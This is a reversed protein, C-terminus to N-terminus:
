RSPGVASPGEDSQLASGLEARSNIDLKRYAGRLHSEVTKISLFLTQAIQRNTLGDAALGAIRRESPTLSDVGIPAFRSMREGTAELEEHARRAVAVAGGRHAMELAQRLPERAEARRNARRLVSGLDTLAKAHELRAPSDELTAVAQRLLEIGKDGGRAIGMAHLGTGIVRPTGWTRAGRLYLDALARAPDGRGLGALALALFKGHARAAELSREIMGRASQGQGVGSLFIAADAVTGVATVQRIGRHRTRKGFEVADAGADATRGQAWRLRARGHLLPNAWFQDPVPGTLADAELERQAAELEGREVLVEVLWGLLFAYTVILGTQRLAEVAARLDPEARGVDGRAVALGGRLGLAIALAPTSGLAQAMAAFEDLTKEAAELEDARTLLFILIAVPQMPPQGQFIRGDDLASLALPVVTTAPQALWYARWAELALLLREAQTRPAIHSRYRHWAPSKETPATVDQSEFRMVADYDGAELAAKKARELLAVGEAFREHGFLWLSLEDASATLVQTNATLEDLARAELDGLAARDGARVAATMAKRLLDRRQVSPLPEALARRAFAIAAEPAGRDLARQAAVSLIEVVNPRGGPDTALLHLAIREPEAGHSELLRAAACHAANRETGPMEAYVANRVLPHVFRLPRGAELIGATVLADAAVATAHADLDGLAGAQRPAADDGLVAVARALRGADAPLRALRLLVSRQITAPALGRVHDADALTGSSGETNLEVLLERLMFPNGGTAEHSAACFEDAAAGTLQSRVIEAV